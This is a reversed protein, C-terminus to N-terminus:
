TCASALLTPAFNITTAALAALTAGVGIRDMPTAEPGRNRMLSIQLALAGGLIAVAIAFGAILAIRHTAPAWGFHCGLHQLAYLVNFAAGWIAFGVLLPWLRRIM